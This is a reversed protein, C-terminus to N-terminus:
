THPQRSFLAQVKCYLHEMVETTFDYYGNSDTTDTGLTAGDSIRILKVTASSLKTNVHDYVYGKCRQDINWEIDLNTPSNPYLTTEREITTYGSKEVRIRAPIPEVLLNTYIVLYDGSADTYDVDELIDWVFLSVKANYVATGGCTVTGRVRGGRLGYVNNLQSISITAFLIIVLLSLICKKNKLLKM